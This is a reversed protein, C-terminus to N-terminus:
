NGAKRSDPETKQEIETEIETDIVGPEKLTELLIKVQEPTPKATNYQKLGRDYKFSRAAMLKLRDHTPGRTNFEYVWLTQGITDIMAVGFTNRDIQVPIVMIPSETNIGPEAEAGVPYGSMNGILFFIAVALILVLPVFLRKRCESM